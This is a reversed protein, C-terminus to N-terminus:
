YAKEMELYNSSLVAAHFERGGTMIRHYRSDTDLPARRGWFFPKLLLEQPAPHSSFKRAAAFEEIKVELQSYPPPRLGINFM